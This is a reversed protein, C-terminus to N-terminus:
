TGEGLNQYRAITQAPNASGVFDQRHKVEDFLARVQLCRGNGLQFGVFIHFHEVQVFM